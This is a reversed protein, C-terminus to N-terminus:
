QDERFMYATRTKAILNHGEPSSVKLEIHRIGQGNDLPPIYGITYRTRIHKAIQRCVPVIEDLKSPFYAEGGSLHALKKLVSPDRDPDDEDFIGVTYITAFSEMVGEVVDELKRRSVNDGGDSIVVLTRRDRHGLNLQKLGELVAEYLATRGEPPQKWLADRLQSINDSFPATDPLGRYPRENFNIVFVEDESNSSGIFALAATIVEARKPSMSGSEDVILGVTVPIDTNAFQKIEQLKGNEFVKFSEQTLGSVYRGKPGKVSVDLVVLRSTTSITYDGESQKHQPQQQGKAPTGAFVQLWCRPGVLINALASLVTRRLM